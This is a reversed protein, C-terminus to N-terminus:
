RVGGRKVAQRIMREFADEVVHGAPDLVLDPEPEGDEDGDPEQPEALIGDEVLQRHTRFDLYAEVADLTFHPRTGEGIMVAIVNRMRSLIRTPLLGQRLLADVRRRMKADLTPVFGEFFDQHAPNM